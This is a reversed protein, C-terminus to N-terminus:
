IANFEYKNISSNDDAKNPEEKNAAENCKHNNFLPHIVEDNM